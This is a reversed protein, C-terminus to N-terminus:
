RPSRAWWASAPFRRCCTGRSIGLKIYHQPMFRKATKRRPTLGMFQLICSSAFANAAAPNVSTFVTSDLPLTTKVAEPASRDIWFFACAAISSWM